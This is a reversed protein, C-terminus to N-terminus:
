DTQKTNIKVQGKRMWIKLLFHSIRKEAYNEEKVLLWKWYCVRSSTPNVEPHTAPM